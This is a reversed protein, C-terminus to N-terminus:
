KNVILRLVPTSRGQLNTSNEPMVARMRFTGTRTLKVTLAYNGTANLNTSKWMKWVGGVRRFLQVRGAGAIGASTKVTGSFKVKTGSKVTSKSMKFTVKWPKKVVIGSEAVKAQLLAVNVIERSYDWNHLGFSGESEVFEVNTFGSLFARQALTWQASPVEVLDNRAVTATSETATAKYGGAAAADDLVGWITEIKMKTWEQRQDITDQLYVAYPDNPRNHCTTCASYPMKGSFSSTTAVSTTAEAAVEPMIITFTHNAGTPSTSTPPMHCQVCKGKHVSPFASVDIAGYGDMMEKMPHHIEAGPTAQTNVPIEGNHCEVCLTQMNDTRLQPTWEEDWAGTETGRDHPTHCGVCTIGYQATAGTPKANAPAIRYDASHCELCPTIDMFAALPKLAKLANAHGESAWEPYQSASGDHGKVQWLSDKGDVQWYVQLGAASTAKPDPMGPQPPVTSTTVNWGPFQVNLVSSIPSPTWTTPVGMMWHGAVDYGAPYQPQILTTPSPNPIPVGAGNIKVPGIPEVTVTAESFSYRSHCQACIAANALNHNPSAHATNSPDNGFQGGSAGYHCSSCGVFSESSAASGAAQTTTAEGNSAEWTVSTATPLPTPTEWTPTPLQTPLVTTAVPTPIVKGPAYNAVHCGACSSGYPLRKGQGHSGAVAHQTKAWTDYVAFPGGAAGGSHCIQCYNTTTYDGRYGNFAMAPAAVVLIAAVVIAVLLIRKVM